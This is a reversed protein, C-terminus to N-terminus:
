KFTLDFYKNLTIPTKKGLRPVIFVDAYRITDRHLLKKVSKDDNTLLTTQPLKSYSVNNVNRRM